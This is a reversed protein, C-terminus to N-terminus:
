YVVTAVLGAVTPTTLPYVTLKVATAKREKESFHWALGASTGAALGVGLMIWGATQWKSMRDSLGKIEAELLLDRSSSARYASYKQDAESKITWFMGVSASAMILAAGGISVSSWLWADYKKNFLIPKSLSAKDPHSLDIDLKVMRGAEIEIPKEFNPYSSHSIKLIYQGPPEKVVFDCKNINTNNWNIKSECPRVRAEFIGALQLDFHFTREQKGVLIMKQQPIVFQGDFDVRHFGSKLTLKIPPRGLNVKDIRVSVDEYKSVIQVAPKASKLKAAFKHVNGARVDIWVEDVLRGKLVVVHHRGESLGVVKCPTSKCRREDDVYVSAKAPKSTIRLVGAKQAVASGSFATLLFMSILVGVSTTRYKFIGITGHSLYVFFLRM